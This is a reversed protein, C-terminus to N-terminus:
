IIKDNTGAIQRLLDTQGTHYTDHFYFGLLRVALPVQREGVEILESLQTDSLQSFGVEIREQGTSLIELLRELNIIEPGDETIPDSDTKYRETEVENLLPEAGILRLVRDRGVVIHGLVWNLCNINYPTQILSDAHSLGATQLKIIRLNLAYGEALQDKTIM